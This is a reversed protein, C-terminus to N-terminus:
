YYYHPRGRCRTCITDPRAAEGRFVQRSAVYFDSNWIDKLPQTFANGFDNAPDDYWCCPSVGGEWSIVCTEWLYPCAKVQQLTRDQRTEYDYFSHRENAPLWREMDERSDTNVMIPAVVVNDVGIQRGLRKIAPIHTENYRNLL